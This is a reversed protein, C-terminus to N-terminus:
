EGTQDESIGLHYEVAADDVLPKPIKASPGTSPTHQASADTKSTLDASKADTEARIKALKKEQIAKQRNTLVLYAMRCETKAFERELELYVAFWGEPDADRARRHELIAPIDKASLHVRLVERM